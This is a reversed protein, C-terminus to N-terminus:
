RVRWKEAKILNYQSSLELAFLHVNDSENWHVIGTSDVANESISVLVFFRNCQKELALIECHYLKNINPLKSYNENASNFINYGSNEMGWEIHQKKVKILFSFINPYNYFNDVFGDKFEHSINEEFFFWHENKDAELMELVTCFSRNGLLQAQHPLSFLTIALLFMM